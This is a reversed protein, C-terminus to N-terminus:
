ACPRRELELAADRAVKIYACGGVEVADLREPLDPDSVEGCSIQESEDDRVCVVKGTAVDRISVVEGTATESGSGRTLAFLSLLGVVVVALVALGIVVPRSM